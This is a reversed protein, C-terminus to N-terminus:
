RSAPDERWGDCDDQVEGNTIYGHYGNDGCRISPSCSVNPWQGSLTWMQPDQGVLKKGGPVNPDDVMTYEAFYRQDPQFYTYYLEALKEHRQDSRIERKNRWEPLIVCYHPGGSRQARAQDSLNDPKIDHPYYCGILENFSAGDAEKKGAARLDYIEQARKHFWERDVQRLKWPM